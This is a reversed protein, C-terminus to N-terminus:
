KSTACILASSWDNGNLILTVLVRPLDPLKKFYLSFIDQFHQMLLNPSLPNYALLIKISICKSSKGRSSYAASNQSCDFSVLTHFNVEFLHIIRIHSARIYPTIPFQTIKFNNVHTNLQKLRTWSRTVRHVTARWARRDM